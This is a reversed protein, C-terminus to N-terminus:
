AAYRTFVPRAQPPRYSPHAHALFNFPQIQVNGRGRRHHSLPAGIYYPVFQVPAGVRALTPLPLPNRMAAVIQQAAAHGQNAASVVRSMSARAENAKQIAQMLQAPRPIGAPLQRLATAAAQGAKFNGALEAAASVAGTAADQLSKAHGIAVGVQIAKQYAPPLAHLANDLLSTAVNKGQAIQQAAHLGAVLALKAEPAIPLNNIVSTAINKGQLADAAIGAATQVMPGGPIASMVGAKLAATINQGSALALSAGLAASLGSGVGPVFSLVTQAYPAIAKVDKLAQKLNNLVAKDIREGSAIATVLNAPANMISIASNALPGIVPIKGLTAHVAQAAFNTAVKTVKVAANSIATLGTAKSVSKAASSFAHGLSKFFGGVTFPEGVGLCMPCGVGSMHSHFIAWLKQLPVFVAIRRNDIGVTVIAGNERWEWGLSNLHHLVETSM